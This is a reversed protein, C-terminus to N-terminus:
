SWGRAIALDRFPKIISPSSSNWATANLFSPTSMESLNNYLKLIENMPLSVTDKINPIPSPEAWPLLSLTHAVEGGSKPVVATDHPEAPQGSCEIDTAEISDFPSLEVLLSDIHASSLGSNLDDSPEGHTIRVLGIVNISSTSFSVLDKREEYNSLRDSPILNIFPTM